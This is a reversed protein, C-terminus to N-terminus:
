VRRKASSTSVCRQAAGTFVFFFTGTISKRALVLSNGLTNGTSAHLTTFNQSETSYQDNKPESKLLFSLPRFMFM